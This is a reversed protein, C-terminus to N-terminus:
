STAGPMGREFYDLRLAKRVEIMTAEAANYGAKTGAELAEKVLNPRAEYYARRERMPDLLNNIAVILKKKVDVDGMFGKNVLVKHSAPKLDRLTAEDIRFMGQLKVGSRGGEIVQMSFPKFLQLRAFAACMLATLDLDGEYESLLQEIGAHVREDGDLVLVEVGVLAAHAGSSAALSRFNSSDTM